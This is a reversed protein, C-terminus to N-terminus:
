SAPRRGPGGRWDLDRRLADDEGFALVGVDKLGGLLDDGFAEGLRDQDAFGFVYFVPDLM